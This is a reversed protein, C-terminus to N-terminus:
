SRFGPARDDRDPRTSRLFALLDAPDFPKPLIRLGRKRCRLAFAESRDATIIRTPLPGISRSLVDWIEPGTVGGPVHGDLLLADPTLDVENLLLLAELSSSVGLAVGGRDEILMSLARMLQDDSVVMLVVLGSICGTGSEPVPEEGQDRSAGASVVVPLDVSFCSGKGPVSVLGLRHGLARCARDVIALGLGLGDSMGRGRDLRHFEDFIVTQEEPEIGCGTDHVEVRATAGHRRVGVLVRGSDTYRVANSILNQLIRRLFGPDSDVALSCNVIDFKLGKARAQPALENELAGLLRDLPVTQRDFLARPSDLRSMDLLSEIIHEVSQLATEAKGAVDAARADNGGEALSAVFLKAASLPQALDHSAAAVFRSKFANARRAEELAADLDRTRERVRRELLENMEVLTRGAERESTVDSFSLLFGHDPMERGFVRLINRGGQRLEFVIPPRGAGSAVWRHLDDFDFDGMPEIQGCLRDMLVSLRVGQFAREETLRLLSDIRSNGAIFRGDRDFVCVGQDLHDLTSRLLMIQQDIVRNRENRVIDTVDTHLVVTSGSSTRRSQVQLVGGGLIRVNFLVPSKRHLSLRWKIWDAPADFESLDLNRSRSVLGVYDRLTMGIGLECHVDHFERCFRRNFLVLRDDRGFLALGDPITETAENLNAWAQESARKADALHRNVEGLRALTRELDATRERVQAELLAAREFQAYALGTEEHSQEARHVLADVIKALKENARRPSDDPRVFQM